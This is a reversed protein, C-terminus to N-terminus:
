VMLLFFDAAAATATAVEKGSTADIVAFRKDSNDGIHGANSNIITETTYQWM